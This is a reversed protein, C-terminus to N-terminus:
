DSVGGVFRHGARRQQLTDPGHDAARYDGGDCDSGRHHNRQQGHWPLDGNWFHGACERHLHRERGCSYWRSARGVYRWKPVSFLGDIAHAGARERHPQGEGCQRSLACSDLGAGPRHARGIQSLRKVHDCGRCTCRCIAAHVAFCADPYLWFESKDDNDQSREPRFKSGAHGYSRRSPAHPVNTNSPQFM